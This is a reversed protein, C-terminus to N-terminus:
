LLQSGMRWTFCVGDGGLVMLSPGDNDHLEKVRFNRRMPRPKQQKWWRVASAALVPPRPLIRSSGMDHWTLNEHIKLLTYTYTQKM